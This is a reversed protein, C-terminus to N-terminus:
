TLCRPQVDVFCTLRCGEPSRARVSPCAGPYTPPIELHRLEPIILTTLAKRPIQGAHLPRCPRDSRFRPRQGKGNDDSAGGSGMGLGSGAVWRGIEDVAEENTRQERYAAFWDPKYVKQGRSKPSCCSADARTVQALSPFPFYVCQPMPSPLSALLGRVTTSFAYAIAVPSSQWQSLWIKQILPRPGTDPSVRLLGCWITTRRSPM